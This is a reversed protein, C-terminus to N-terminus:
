GRPPSSLHRKYFLKAVGLRQQRKDVNMGEFYGGLYFWISKRCLLREGIYTLIFIKDCLIQTYIYTSVM